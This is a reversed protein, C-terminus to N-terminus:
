GATKSGVTSGTAGDEGGNGFLELRLQEVRNSVHDICQAIRDANRNIIVTIEQVLREAEEKNPASAFDIKKGVKIKATGGVMVVSFRINRLSQEYKALDRVQKDITSM